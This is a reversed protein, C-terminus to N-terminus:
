IGTFLLSYGLEPIQRLLINKANEDIFLERKDKETSRSMDGKLAMYVLQEGMAEQVIARASPVKAIVVDRLADNVCHLHIYNYIQNSVTRLIRKVAIQQNNSNRENVREALNIGLQELAYQETLIYRNSTEDFTMYHDSYPYNMINNEM